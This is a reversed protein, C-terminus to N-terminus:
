AFLGHIYWRPHRAEAGYLGHRFIWYRRGRADEIRYYDRTLGTSEGEV